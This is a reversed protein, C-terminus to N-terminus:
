EAFGPRAQAARGELDSAVRKIAALNSWLSAQPLFDVVSGFRNAKHLSITIRHVRSWTSVAVASVNSFAIVEVQGGKRVELYGGCDYVEDVLRYTRARGLFYIFFAALLSLAGVSPAPDRWLSGDVLAPGAVCAILAAASLYLGQKFLATNKFSILRM